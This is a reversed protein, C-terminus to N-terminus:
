IIQCFKKLKPDVYLAKALQQVKLRQYAM